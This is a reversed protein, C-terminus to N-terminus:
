FPLPPANGDKGVGGLCVSDGELTRKLKVRRLEEGRRRALAAALQDVPGKLVASINQHKYEISGHPRGIMAQLLRNHEAKSHPM